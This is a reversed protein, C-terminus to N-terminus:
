LREESELLKDMIEKTEKWEGMLQACAERGEPTITYYRLGTDELAEIGKYSTGVQPEESFIYDVTGDSRVSLLLASRQNPVNALFVSEVYEGVQPTTLVSEQGLVQSANPNAAPSATSAATSAEPAEEPEKSCAWLGSLLCLCLIVSLIRKM